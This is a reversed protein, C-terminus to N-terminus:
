AEVAPSPALGLLTGNISSSAELCPVPYVIPLDAGARRFADLRSAAEAADGLLCLERVLREPVSDPGRAAMAAERELGAEELQRRYHPISAYQATAAKLAALSVDPDQGVCARVYVGVTVEEPDRGVAEAGERIRTRAWAVREPTCWNLLVGDAARGALQLTKPGLAALFIPIPEPGPDLALSFVQGGDVAGERGSFVERLFGVVSALHELSGPGPDGAGIGLIMRGRSLENVTAAGMALAEPSRASVPIVGSGLKIGVTARALGALTAFAERAAIEPVFLAEYGTREALEATLVLEHWPLPERLAVGARLVERQIEQM